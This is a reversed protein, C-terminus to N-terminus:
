AARDVFMVGIESGKQWRMEADRPEGGGVIVLAFRDPAAFYSDVKLRAGSSSLDRVTCDFVTQIGHVLIKGRKLVRQRWEERRNVGAGDGAGALDGDTAVAHSPLNEPFAAAFSKRASIASSVARKAAAVLSGGNDGNYPSIAAGITPKVHIVMGDLQVTFTLDNVLKEGIASISAPTIMKEYFCLFSDGHYHGCFSADKQLLKLKAAFSRIVRDVAGYGFRAKLEPLEPLALLLVASRRKSGGVAAALMKDIQASTHLGTVPDFQLQEKLKEAEASANRDARRKEIAGRIASVLEGTSLNRKSVYDSFGSRFAKVATRESGQGTLMVVPPMDRLKAKLREGVALGTENGLDYDLVVCDVEADDLAALLQDGDHAPIVFMRCEQQLMSSLRELFLPDDDVVALRLKTELHEM